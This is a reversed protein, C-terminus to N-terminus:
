GEVAKLPFFGTKLWCEWLNGRTQLVFGQFVVVVVVVM